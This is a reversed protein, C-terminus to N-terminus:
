RVELSKKRRAEFKLHKPFMERLFKGEANMGELARKMISVFGDRDMGWTSPLDGLIRKVLEHYGQVLQMDYEGELDFVPQGAQDVDKVHLHTAYNLMELHTNNIRTQTNTTVYGLRIGSVDVRFPEPLYVATWLRPHDIKLRPLAKVLSGGSACIDVLCTHETLKSNLYDFFSDSGRTLCDRSSYIYEVDGIFLHRFVEFLLCTDRSMFLLKQVGERAVYEGLLIASAWLFPVNFELQLFNLRDGHREDNLLELRLQRVWYALEESHASYYLEVDTLGTKVLRTEIGHKLPGKVDNWLHDGRHVAIDNEAKVRKWISGNHKGYNSVYIKGNFRIGGAEMLARLQDERLYMDSVVIDVDRVQEVFRKIPFVNELELEFEREAFEKIDKTDKTNFFEEYIDQLSYAVGKAQLAKEAKMRKVVFQDDGLERARQLFVRLPTGCKRGILTDFLDWSQIKM